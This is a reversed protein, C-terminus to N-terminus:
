RGSMDIWSGTEGWAGRSDDWQVKISGVRAVRKTGGMFRRKGVIIDAMGPIYEIKGHNGNQRNATAKSWTLDPNHLLLILTAAQEARGSYRIDDIAPVQGDTRRYQALLIIPVNIRKALVAMMSYARGMNGEDQEKNWVMLDAYDIGIFHLDPYKAAIRSAAAFVEDTDYSSSSMLIRKKDVQSLEPDIELMRYAFQGLTMELSIIACRKKKRAACKALAMLFTSKGSGPLAAVITLGSKPYGGVYEDLPGYYSPTFIVQEPEVDSLPVFDSLNSGLLNMAEHVPTIDADEGSRLKQVIPHMREGANVRVAARRAAEAYTQPDGKVNDAATKAHHISQISLHELLDVEEAGEAVLRVLKDYPECLDSPDIELAGLRGRLICGATIESASRWNM